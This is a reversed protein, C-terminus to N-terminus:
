LFYFYSAGLFELLSYRIKNLLASVSERNVTDIKQIKGDGEDSQEVNEIVLQKVLALSTSIFATPSQSSMAVMNQILFDSATLSSIVIKPPRVRVSYNASVSGMLVADNVVICIRLEYDDSDM